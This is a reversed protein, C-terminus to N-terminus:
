RAICAPTPMCLCGVYAMSGTCAVLQPLIRRGNVRALHGAVCLRWRDAREPIVQRAVPHHLDDHLDNPSLLHDDSNFAPLITLSKRPSLPLSPTLEGSMYKWKAGAPRNGMSLLFTAALTGCYIYNMFMNLIEVHKIGYAPQPASAEAQDWLGLSPEISVDELSQTIIIFFIYYNALGFWAFVLNIVNYLTEFYLAAKRTM